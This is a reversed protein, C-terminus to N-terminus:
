VQNFPNFVFSLVNYHIYITELFIDVPLFYITRARGVLFISEQCYTGQEPTYISQVTEM